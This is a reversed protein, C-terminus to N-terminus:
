EFEVSWEQEAAAVTVPGFSRKALILAGKEGAARVASRECVNDVGTVSEVFASATFDGQVKRLDEAGYVQLPLFHKKCYELLGPEQAKRDITAVARISQPWIGAQRLAQEVAYTIGGETAGKRCGIGLVVCKPILYLTKDTDPPLAEASVGGSGSASPKWIGISIDSKRCFKEAEEIYTVEGPLNGSICGKGNQLQLTVRQERLIKASIEKAKGLDQIWLGNKVAFVDVAWKGNVDTATTLVAEMSLAKELECALANAGGMHGSLIPICYRGGEDAVLVAPDKAKSQIWPAIARVAIGAAGIFIIAEREQFQRGTWQSLPETVSREDQSNKVAEWVQHERAELAEKVTHALSKGRSTFSIVAIKM